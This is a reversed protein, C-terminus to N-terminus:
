IFSFFHINEKVKEGLYGLLSVSEKKM